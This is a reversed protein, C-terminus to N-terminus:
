RGGSIGFASVVEQTVSNGADDRASARLSVLDAGRPPIRLRAEWREDDKRLKVPSWTAGGDYSVELTAGAVSGARPAGPVTYPAVSLPVVSGARVTGDLATDVDYDLQVLPLPTGTHGPVAADAQDAVFTQVAQDINERVLTDGQYLRSTVPTEGWPFSGTLGNQGGAAAVNVAFWDGGHWPGWYGDGRGPRRSRHSGTM